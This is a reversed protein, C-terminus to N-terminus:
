VGFQKFHHDLHKYFMNNWEHTTLKGLSHSSKNDFYVEGLQQTKFLYAILREKEKEFDRVDKILFSPATQLNIKYPVESTIVKKLFLKLLMKVFLNPKPHKNEFAMEYTVNCHALMQEVNMKGWKPFTTPTLKNIREIIDDVIEKTFINPFAM